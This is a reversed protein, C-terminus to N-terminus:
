YNSIFDYLIDYVQPAWFLLNSQIFLDFASADNKQVMSSWQQGFGLFMTIWEDVSNCQTFQQTMVM